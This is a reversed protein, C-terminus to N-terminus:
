DSAIKLLTEKLGFRNTDCFVIGLDEYTKQVSKVEKKNLPKGLYVFYILINSKKLDGLIQQIKSSLPFEGDTLVLVANIGKRSPNPNSLLITKATDLGSQINTRGWAHIRNIKQTIQEKQDCPVAQLLVESKGSFTVVSIQDVQRQIGVLYAAQEKLLDLKRSENMSSSADLLYVLHHPAAQQIRLADVSRVYANSDPEIKGPDYEFKYLLRPAMLLVNQNTDIESKSLCCASTKSFTLGDALELYDNYDEVISNYSRVFDNYAQQSPKIFSESTHRSTAFWYITSQMSTYFTRYRTHIWFGSRLNGYGRTEYLYLSDNKLGQANLIRIEKDYAKTTSFNERYLDNEWNKLLNMTLNLEQLGQKLEQHSALPPFSRNFYEVLLSDLERSDQYCQRFWNAHNKLITKAQRFQPDSRFQKNSVYENLEKHTLYLSDTSVLYKKLIPLLPTYSGSNGALNNLVKERAELWPIYDAQYAPIGNSATPTIERFRSASEIGSYSVTGNQQTKSCYFYNENIKEKSQFVAKQLQVADAYWQQNCFSFANMLEVIRNLECVQENRNQAFGPLHFLLIGAFTILHFFRNM